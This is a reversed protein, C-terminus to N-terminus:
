RTAPTNHRALVDLENVVPELVTLPTVEFPVRLSQPRRYNMVRVRFTVALSRGGDANNDRSVLDSIVDSIVDSLREVRNERLRESVVFGDDYVIARGVSRM